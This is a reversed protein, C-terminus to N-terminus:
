KHNEFLYITRKAPPEDVGNISVNIVQDVSANGDDAVIKIQYMNPTGGTQSPSEYNLGSPIKSKLPYDDKGDSNLDAASGTDITFQISDSFTDDLSPVVPTGDADM